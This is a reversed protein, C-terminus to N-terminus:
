HGKPAKEKPDKKDDQENKPQEGTGESPPVAMVPSLMAAGFFALLALCTYKKM